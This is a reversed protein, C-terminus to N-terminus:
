LSSVDRGTARDAALMRRRWYGTSPPLMRTTWAKVQLRYDGPIWPAAEGYLSRALPLDGERLAQDARSYQERPNGHRLRRDLYEVEPPRLLHRGQADLKAFMQDEGDLMRRVQTTLTGTVRRYLALPETQFLGEWGNLIARLWLDWDECTTLSEDYGDIEVFMEAPVLSFLSAFNGQLIAMRQADGRVKRHMLVRRRPEIGSATLLYGDSTVWRRGGGAFRWVDLCREVFPPLLIDDSDCQAIFEGKAARIARNRAASVGANPQQLFRVRDGYGAVVEATRDSSGDDVVVIEIHPYTQQLAASITSGITTEANYAPIVISVLPTSM